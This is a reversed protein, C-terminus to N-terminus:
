KGRSKKTKERNRTNKLSPLEFVCGFHKVFFDHRFANVFFELLVGFGIKERNTKDRKQANRPSTLEFVRYFFISFIFRVGTRKQNKAESQSSTAAPAATPGVRSPGHGSGVWSARHV